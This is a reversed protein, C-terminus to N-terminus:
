SRRDTGLRALSAEFARPLRDHSANQPYAKSVLFIEDRRGEIAEGVLRESEGDAYMEATDILTLGLDIGERLAAIEEARRLRDEAMMWIGQGLAPVATGDPLRIMKMASGVNWSSKRAMALRNHVIWTEAVAAHEWNTGFLSLEAGHDRALDDM